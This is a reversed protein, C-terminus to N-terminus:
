ASRISKGRRVPLDEPLIQSRVPEPSRVGPPHWPGKGPWIFHTAYARELRVDGTKTFRLQQKPGSGHRMYATTSPVLNLDHVHFRLIRLLRSLRTLNCGIVKELYPIRGRRWQELDDGSLLQMGVLVDIPRVVKDKELILEVARSIRPFLPDDRFTTVTVPRM